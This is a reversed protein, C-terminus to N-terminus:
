PAVENRLGDGNLALFVHCKIIWIQTADNRQICFVVVGFKFFSAGSSGITFIPDVATFDDPNGIVSIINFSTVYRDTM